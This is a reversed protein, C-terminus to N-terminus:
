ISSYNVAQNIRIEEAIKELTDLLGQLHNITTRPNLLTVRLYTEGKLATQVIYFTGDNILEQRILANLENPNDCDVYRFCLINSDPQHATDFKSRSNILRAFEKTLDYQYDVFDEFIKDGFQKFLTYVKLVTMSKTCEYTSKGGHQWEFNQKEWLYEAEQRFTEFALTRDKLLVATSISPTLMMKHFDLVISDAYKTGDLLHKYRKSFITPAGHAGDAHFWVGKSKCFKGIGEIDDYTGTSTSPASAVICFVKKGESIANKYYEEVAEPLMRFNDDVPVKIVRDNSIGMTIAAREICYHSQASTIICLKDQDADSKCVHYLFHSKATLIATLTGLTGGSTVFGGAQAGMGFKESLHECVVRELTNGVMGVEYVGMGNSLFDIVLSALVSSLAPVATQHGMYHPHHYLISRDIVDKFFEFPDSQEFFSSKWYAYQEEPTKYPIVNREEAAEFTKTLHEILALGSERFDIANFAKDLTVKKM